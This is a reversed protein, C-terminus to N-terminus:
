KDGQLGGLGAMTSGTTSLTSKATTGPARSFDTLDHGTDKEMAPLKWQNLRSQQSSSGGNGAGAGGGASNGVGAGSAGGHHYPGTPEKGLGIESLSNQLTTLDNPERHFNAGLHGINSASGGHQQQHQQQQQQQQKVYIAQQTAIQNQLGAIQQKIKPILSM